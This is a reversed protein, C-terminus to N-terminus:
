YKMFIKGIYYSKKITYTFIKFELNEFIAILANCFISIISEIFKKIKIEFFFKKM